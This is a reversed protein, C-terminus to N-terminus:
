LAATLSSRKIKTQGHKKGSQKGIESGMYPGLLNMLKRAIRADSKTQDLLLVCFASSGGDCRHCGLRAGSEDM